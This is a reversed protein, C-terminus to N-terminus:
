LVDEPHTGGNDLIESDSSVLEADREESCALVLADLPYLLTERQIKNAEMMDSADPVLLNVDRVVEREIEEVRDMETRKKKALV